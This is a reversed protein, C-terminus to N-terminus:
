RGVLRINVPRLESRKKLVRSEARAIVRDFTRRIRQSKSTNPRIPNGISVEIDLPAGNDYESNKEDLFDQIETELGVSPELTAKNSVVVFAGNGAYAMMYGSSRIVDGIADAVETLAYIFEETSARAYIAEIRDIKVAYVQSSVLGARSLQTLYNGLAAYEILDKVGEIQVEDYIDFEHQNAAEPRHADVTSIAAAAEQRASFVEQAMRLRANLEVIDFPKNAYDTAGAQFARDIYDKETMATLMIVPTKRYAPMSRVLQCLEIGDMDPMSIDLLLCDFVVDGKNLMDLAIEGSLSTSVDTFGARAAMMTLIELIYPDDDVALIKM